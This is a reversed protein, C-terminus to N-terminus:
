QREDFQLLVIPGTVKRTDTMLYAAVRRGDPSWASDAALAGGAIHHPHGRENFFTVRRQNSGDANMLWYDAKMDVPDIPWGLVDRSSMWLIQEGSPSLQAHEDWEKPTRTLNTVTKTSRDMWYVDLGTEDQGPELNASFLVREGPLDFGHSEYFAPRGAPDFTRVNDLRPTSNRFQVDAVKLAWRGWKGGRAGTREAWVLRRGDHSFHPHLVGGYGRPVRTMQWFREGRADTIWVDNAIGAGPNAFFDTLAPLGRFGGRQAQFALYEGSPHWAPNGAQRNPLEPRDCTICREGSGDPRVTFIDFYGDDGKRDFAIVDKSSWDLRGGNTTLTTVSPVPEARFERAGAPRGVPATLLSAGLVGAAGIRVRWGGFQIM